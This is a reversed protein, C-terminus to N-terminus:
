ARDARVVTRSMQGPQEVTAIHLLRQLALQQARDAFIQWESRMLPTSSRLCKLSVQVRRRSSARRCNAAQRSLWTRPSSIAQRNPPSSNMRIGAPHRARTVRCRASSIAFSARHDKGAVRRCFGRPTVREMPTAIKGSYPSDLVSIKSGCIRREVAGLVGAAVRRYASGFPFEGSLGAVWTQPECVSEM